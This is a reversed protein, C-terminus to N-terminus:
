PKHQRVPKQVGAIAISSHSGSRIGLFGAAAGGAAGVGAGVGGAGGAGAGRGVGTVSFIVSDASASNSKSLDVILGSPAALSSSRTLLILPMFRSVTM